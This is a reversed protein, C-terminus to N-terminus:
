LPRVVGSRGTYLSRANVVNRPTDPADLWVIYPEGSKLGTITASATCGGGTTVTKWSPTPQAGSVLTQLIATLRYRSGYSPPWEVKFGGAIPTVVLPILVQGVDNPWGIACASSTPLFSVSPLAPPPTGTFISAGATPTASGSQVRIWPRGNAQPGPTVSASASGGGAGSGCGGLLVLAAVALACGGVRM